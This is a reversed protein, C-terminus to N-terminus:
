HGLSQYGQRRRCVLITGNTRSVPATREGLGDGCGARSEVKVKRPGLFLISSTTEVLLFSTFRRDLTKRSNWGFEQLKRGLSDEWNWKIKENQGSLWPALGLHEILSAQYTMGEKKCKCYM